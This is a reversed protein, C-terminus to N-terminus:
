PRYKPRLNCLEQLKPLLWEGCEAIRKYRSVTLKRAARILHALCTQRGYEWKIYARFDDSILIGCWDDIIKFFAAKSRREDIRFLAHLDNCLVWLWHLHKKAPGFMRSSTEDVHNYSSGRVNREIAEYYPILADSIRDLINQIGGQSIAGHFVEEIIKQTQRRTTATQTDIYAIFASLLPGYARKYEEPIVGQVRKGCKACYGEHVHFHTVELLEQKLEIFQETYKDVVDVFETSGCHPCVEPKCDVTKTPKLMKQSAGPHHAKRKKKAKGEESTDKADAEESDEKKPEETQATTAAEEDLFKLTVGDGDTANEDKELSFGHDKLTKDFNKKGFVSDKSAPRNSNSPSANFLDSFTCLLKTFQDVLKKNAKCLADYKEALDHYFESNKKIVGKLAIENARRSTLKAKM